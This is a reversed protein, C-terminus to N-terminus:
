AGAVKYAWWEFFNARYVFGFFNGFSSKVPPRLWPTDRIKALWLAWGILATFAVQLVFAAIYNAAFITLYLPGFVREQMLHIAEHPSRVGIIMTGLTQKIRNGFAASTDRRKFVVCGSDKSEAASPSGLCFYIINGFVFGFVTNPLSWTMDVLILLWGLPSSLDYILLFGAEIGYFFGFITGTVLAFSPGTLGSVVFLLYGDLAGLIMCITIILFVKIGDNM